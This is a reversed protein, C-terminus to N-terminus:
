QFFDKGCLFWTDFEKYFYSIDGHQESPEMSIAEDDGYFFTLQFNATARIDNIEFKNDEILMQEFDIMRIEWILKEANFDNENHLFDLHYHDMIKDINSEEFGDLISEIIDELRNQDLKEPSTLDSCSILLIFVLSYIYKV